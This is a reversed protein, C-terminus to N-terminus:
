NDCYSCAEYPPQYTLGLECLEQLGSQGLGDLGKIARMVRRAGQEDYPDTGVIGVLDHYIVKVKKGGVERSSTSCRGEKRTVAFFPEFQPSYEVTYEKKGCTVINITM